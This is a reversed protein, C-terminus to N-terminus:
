STLEIPYRTYTFYILLIFYEDDNLAYDAFVSADGSSDMHYPEDGSILLHHITVGASNTLDDM